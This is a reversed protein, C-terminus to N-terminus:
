PAVVVPEANWHGKIIVTGTWGTAYIKKTIDMKYYRNTGTYTESSSGAKFVMRKLRRFSNLFTLIPIDANSSFDNVAQKLEPSNEFKINLYNSNSNTNESGLFNFNLCLLYSALYIDDTLFYTNTSNQITPM